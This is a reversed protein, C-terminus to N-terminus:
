VNSVQLVSHLQAITIDLHSEDYIAKGDKILIIQPSQHEVSWKSAITNSIDRYQKLDLYHPTVHELNWDSEVRSKAMHSIPCTTSHKFLAQVNDFSNKQIDDLQEINDLVRWEIM